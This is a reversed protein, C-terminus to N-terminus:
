KADHAAGRSPFVEARLEDAEARKLLIWERRQRFRWTVYILSIAVCFWLPMGVVMAILSLVLAFLGHLAFTRVAAYLAVGFANFNEYPLTREVSYFRGVRGLEMQYDYRPGFLKEGARLWDMGSQEWAEVKIEWESPYADQKAARDAKKKAEDLREEKQRILWAAEAAERQMKSMQMM